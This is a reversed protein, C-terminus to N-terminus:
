DKVVNGKEPKLKRFVQNMCYLLALSVSSQNHMFFVTIRLYGPWSGFGFLPFHKRSFAQMERIRSQYEKKETKSCGYWWRWVKSIGTAPIRLLEQRSVLDANKGEMIFHYSDLYADAFDILSRASYSRTISKKHIRYHYSAEPIVAVKQATDMLRHMTEVDEFIKGEPFHINRFLEIRYLKDCSHYDYKKELLARLTEPGEFIADLARYKNQFPHPEEVFGCVGIQAGTKEMKALLLEYMDRDIWDDSDIFSVFEGKAERLGLNRAASPGGNETHFVRVRSDARGFEDCITGSSDSSGDDVLLVELDQITQGLISDVCEKLYKETNYVPIIVSIM